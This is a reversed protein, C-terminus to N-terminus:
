LLKIGFPALGNKFLIYGKADEDEFAYFITVNPKILQANSTQINIKFKEETQHLTLSFYTLDEKPSQKEGLIKRITVKESIFDFYDFKKM